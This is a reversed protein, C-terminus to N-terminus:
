LDPSDDPGLSTPAPPARRDLTASSASRLAFCTTVEALLEPEFHGLKERSLNRARKKGSETAPVQLGGGTGLNAGSGRVRSFKDALSSRGPIM